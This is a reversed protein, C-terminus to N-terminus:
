LGVNKKWRKNKLPPLSFSKKVLIEDRVWKYYNNGEEMTKWEKQIKLKRKKSQKIQSNILCNISDFRMILTFLRINDLLNIKTWSFLFVFQNPVSWSFLNRAWINTLASSFITTWKCSLQNAFLKKDNSM